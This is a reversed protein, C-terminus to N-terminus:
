RFHGVLALGALFQFPPSRWADVGAVRLTTRTLTALADAHTRLAFPGFLTVEIGLRLGAAGWPTQDTRAETVGTGVGRLSGYALLACGMLLDHHLCPVLAGSLISSAVQGGEPGRRRTEDDVRGEVAISWSRTRFGVAASLGLALEPGAGFAAFAGLSVTPFTDPPATSASPAVAPVVVLEPATASVSPETSVSGSTSASVSPTPSSGGLPDIAIAVALATSSALEACDVASLMRTGVVKNTKDKLELKARFGAGERTFTVTVAREADDHFPDYGLRAAVLARFGPEEPCVAANPKKAYSLRASPRDGAWLLPAAVVIATALARFPAPSRRPATSM